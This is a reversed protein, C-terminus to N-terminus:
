LVFAVFTLTNLADTVSFQCTWNRKRARAWALWNTDASARDRIPQPLPRRLWVQVLIPPSYYGAFGDVIDVGM